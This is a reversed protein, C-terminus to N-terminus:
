SKAVSGRFLSIKGRSVAFSFLFFRSLRLDISDGWAGEGWEGPHGEAHVHQPEIRFHLSNKHSAAMRAQRALLVAFGALFAGFLVGRDQNAEEISVDDINLLSIPASSELHPLLCPGYVIFWPANNAKM